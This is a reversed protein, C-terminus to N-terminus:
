GTMSSTKASTTVHIAAVARDAATV